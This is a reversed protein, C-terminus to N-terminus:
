LGIATIMAPSYTGGLRVIYTNSTSGRKIQPRIRYTTGDTVSMIWVATIYMGDVDTASGDPDIFKHVTIQTNSLSQNFNNTLRMDITCGTTNLVTGELFANFVIKINGTRDAEFDIQLTDVQTFITGITQTSSSTSYDCALIEGSVKSQSNTIRIPM